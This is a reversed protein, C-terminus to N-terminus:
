VRDGHADALGWASFEFEAWAHLMQMKVLEAVTLGGPIPIPIRQATQSITNHTNFFIFLVFAFCFPRGHVCMPPWVIFCFPLVYFGAAASM